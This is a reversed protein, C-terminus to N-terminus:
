IGFKETRGLTLKSSRVISNNKFYIISSIWHSKTTQGKCTCGSGSIFYACNDSGLLFSNAFVPSGNETKHSKQMLRRMKQRDKGREKNERVKGHFLIQPTLCFMQTDSSWFSIIDRGGYTLMMMWKLWNRWFGYLSLKKTKKKKETNQFKISTKIVKLMFIVKRSPWIIGGLVYLWFVTVKSYCKVFVFFVVRVPIKSVFLLDFHLGLLSFGPDPAMRSCLSLHCM